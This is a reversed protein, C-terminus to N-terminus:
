PFILEPLLQRLGSAAPSATHGEVAGVRVVLTAPSRSPRPLRRLFTTDVAPRRRADLSPRILLGFLAVTENLFTSITPIADAPHAAVLLGLLEALLHVPVPASPRITQRGTSVPDAVVSLVANTRDVRFEPRVDVKHGSTTNHRLRVVPVDASPAVVSRVPVRSATNPTVAAVQTLGKAVRWATHGAAVPVATRAVPLSVAVSTEKKAALADAVAKSAIAAREEPGFRRDAVPVKRALMAVPPRRLGLPRMLRQRTTPRRRLAAAGHGAAEVVVSLVVAGNALRGAVVASALPDPGCTEPRADQEQRVPAEAWCIQGVLPGLQRRSAKNLGAPPGAGLTALGVPLEALALRLRTPRYAILTTFSLAALCPSPLGPVVVDPLLRLRPRPVAVLRVSSAVPAATNPSHRAAFAELVNPAASQRPPAGLQVPRASPRAVVDASNPLIPRAVVRGVVANARFTHRVDALRGVVVSPRRAFTLGFKAVTLIAENHRPSLSAAGVVAAELRVLRHRGELCLIALQM